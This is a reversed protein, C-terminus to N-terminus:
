NALVVLLEAWRTTYAPSKMQQRMRWREGLGESAYRVANRGHVRNIRDVAQMLRESRGEDEGAISFLTQQEMGSPILDPLLVGARQYAFGPRFIRELGRLACRILFGSDQSPRDFDITVANSYPPRTTDFPSTAVFVCLAQACLNQSRLKEGSRAAFASVAARLDDLSTLREGFSRSTLIQKRPPPISELPICSVGRLELVVREMVVGFHRRILKPDANRLALADAIGLSRLREGWRTSIGWIDEVPLARLMAEPDALKPWELVPGSQGLGKKALRNALKALTKTPAIGVSVPIGTWQRVTRAM